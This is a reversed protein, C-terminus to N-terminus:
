IYEGITVYIKGKKTEGSIHSFIMKGYGRVTIVDGEKVNYSGNEMVRGSLFVKKERMLELVKSRSINCKKAIIADIRLSPVLVESSKKEYAIEESMEDIISVMVSTHKIKSLNEVVYDAINDIVFIYGENNRIIIDGIKERKIGLNMLAGLFDRHTLKDAFKQLLPKVKVVVIPYPMEYGVSDMSGFRAVERICGNAGGFLSYDMFREEEMTRKLLAVDEMSLFDTFFYQNCKYSKDALEAFRKKLFLEEDTM